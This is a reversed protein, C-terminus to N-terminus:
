LRGAVPGTGDTGDSCAHGRRKPLAARLGLDVRHRVRLGCALFARGPCLCRSAVPGPVYASIILAADSSYPVDPHCGTNCACAIDLPCGTSPTLRLIMTRPGALVALDREGDLNKVDLSRSCSGPEPHPVANRVDDSSGRNGTAFQCQETM